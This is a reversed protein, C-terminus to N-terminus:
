FSSTAYNDFYYVNIEAQGEEECECRLRMDNIAPDLMLAGFVDGELMLDLSHTDALPTRENQALIQNHLSKPIYERWKVNNVLFEAGTVGAKKIEILAIYAGKPRPINEVENVGVSFNYRFSRRKFLWMPPTGASKESYAKIVPAAADDAIDFKIQALQLGTTGLGFFRQEVLQPQKSSKIESRVFHMTALGATVERQYYTNENLLDQLTAYETLVRGDLEVKLNKIQSPTVGSYEFHVKDYTLGVPLTLSVTGGAQVGTIKNLPAINRM